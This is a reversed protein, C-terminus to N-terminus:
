FFKEIDIIEIWINKFVILISFVKEVIEKRKVVFDGEIFLGCVESKVLFDGNEMWEYLKKFIELYFFYKFYKGVEVFLLFLFNEFFLLIKCYEVLLMDFKYVFEGELISRLIVNLFVILVM